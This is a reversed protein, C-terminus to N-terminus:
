ARRGISRLRTESDPVGEAVRITGVLWGRNLVEQVNWRYNAKKKKEIKKEQSYRWRHPNEKDLSFNLNPFSLVNEVPGKGLDLTQVHISIKGL